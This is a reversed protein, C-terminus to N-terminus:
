AVSLDLDEIEQATFKYRPKKSSKEQYVISPLLELADSDLSKIDKNKFKHRAQSASGSVWYDNLNYSGGNINNFKIRIHTSYM